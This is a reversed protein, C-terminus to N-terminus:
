LIESTENSSVASLKDHSSPIIDDISSAFSANCINVALLFAIIAWAIHNKLREYM